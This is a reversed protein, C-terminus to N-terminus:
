SQNEYEEIIYKWCHKQKINKILNKYSKLFVDDRHSYGCEKIIDSNKSIGKNYICDCIKRVDFESFISDPKEEGKLYVYRDSIFKDDMNMQSNGWILNIAFNCDPIDNKHMIINYENPDLNPVFLEAVARHTKYPYAIRKKNKYVPNNKPIYLCFRTYGDKDYYLPAISGDPKMVRGTNSVRYGSKKNRFYLDKWEENIRFEKDILVAYFKKNIFDFDYLKVPIKYTKISLLM